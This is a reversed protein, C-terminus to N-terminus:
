ELRHNCLTFNICNTYSGWFSFNCTIRQSYWILIALWLHSTIIIEEQIMQGRYYFMISGKWISYEQSSINNWEIPCATNSVKISFNGLVRRAQFNGLCQYTSDPPKWEERWGQKVSIFLILTKQPSRKVRSSFSSIALSKVRVSSSGINSKVFLFSSLTSLISRWHPVLASSPSDYIEPKPLWYRFSKSLSSLGDHMASRKWYSEYIRFRRKTQPASVIRLDSTRHKVHIRPDIEGPM